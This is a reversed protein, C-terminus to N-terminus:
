AISLAMAGPCCISYFSGYYGPIVEPHGSLNILLLFSYDNAGFFALQRSYDVGMLSVMRLMQVM